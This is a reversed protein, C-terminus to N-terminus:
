RMNRLVSQSTAVINTMLLCFCRGCAFAGDQAIEAAAVPFTLLTKSLSGDGNLSVFDLSNAAASPTVAMWTETPAASAAAAAAVFALLLRSM